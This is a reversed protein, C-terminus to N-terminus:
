LSNYYRILKRLEDPKKVSIKEQKAFQKLEDQKDPFNSIFEKLNGIQKLEGDGIKFYFADSMPTYRAPLDGGDLAKGKLADQFKMMKKALLTVKGSDLLNMFGYKTKGNLEYKEVIFTEDGLQVKKIKNSPDLVLSKGNQQYEMLDRYVNYRVPVRTHATKSAEGFFIDGDVYKENLYPTGDVKPAAAQQAHSAFVICMALLFIFSCKATM